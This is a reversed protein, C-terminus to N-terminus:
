EDEKTNFLSKVMAEIVALDIDFGRKRLEDEVYKLKEEGRGAGKFIGEAATVLTKVIAMYNDYKAGSLKEKLWPTLYRAVIAAILSILAMIAPTLDINQM